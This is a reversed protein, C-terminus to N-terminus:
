RRRAEEPRGVAAVLIDARRCFSALDRTRSHAVTVTCSDNLLLQAMPKGVINSRGVVVAELGSLDGLHSRLLMLCGLPTCPVMANQGTGLLGVNSIHFGDVDKAPDIAKIVLDANLHGPLPIQVLIGHIDPDSNLDKILALLDAQSTETPLKHEVNNMGAQITQRGKNRVYVESAPDGGVLLVALGPTIGHEEKLWAVHGALRSRLQAASEKGDIIRATM